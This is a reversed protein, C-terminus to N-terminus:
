RISMKLSDYYRLVSAIEDKDAKRIKIKNTRIYKKIAGSEEGFVNLFLRKNTIKSYYGNVRIYDSPSYIYESVGEKVLLYSRHRIIFRSKGDYVVEYFAEPLNFTEDKERSFFRFSLSDTGFNFCFKDIPDKNLAINFVKNDIFKSSDSYILEDIFTDYELTLNNYRRGKLVLSSTHKRDFFLIPKYKSRFYYPIYDKGNVLEDVNDVNQFYFKSLYDTQSDLIARYDMRGYFVAHPLSEQAQGSLTLILIFIFSSIRPM